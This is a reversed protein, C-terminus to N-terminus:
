DVERRTGFDIWSYVLRCKQCTKFRIRSDVKGHRNVHEEKTQPRDYDHAPDIAPRGECILIMQEM